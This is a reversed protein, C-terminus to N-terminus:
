KKEDHIITVPTGKRILVELQSIDDRLMAIGQPPSETDSPANSEADNKVDIESDINNSHEEVGYLVYGKRDLYIRPMADRASPGNAAVPRGDEWFSKAKVAM